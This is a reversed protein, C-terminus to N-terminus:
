FNASDEAVLFRVAAVIDLMVRLPLLWLNVYWPSNRFCMVINNRFNLYTKRPSKYALSGGGLHYIYSNPCYMIKYGEAILRWCMDIEESHMFFYDYMGDVKKYAEKRILCAAGSAWFIEAPTQYQGNDAETTEFLRGRCFPYGLVDIMGGAAGGHELMGKKQLALLKPQCIAISKDAEMMEVLPEIFGPPVEVDSNMMLYYDEHMEAFGKNYGAAFGYNKDLVIVKVCPHFRRIFALSDDSSNNDIVYIKYNSYTLKELEPLLAQLFAKGNWNLIGIGVAPFSANM